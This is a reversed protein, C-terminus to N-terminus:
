LLDSRGLGADEEKDNVDGKRSDLGAGDCGSGSGNEVSKIAERVRVVAGFDAEHGDVRGEM